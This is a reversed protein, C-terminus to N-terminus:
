ALYMLDDNPLHLEKWSSSFEKPFVFFLEFFNFALKEYSM